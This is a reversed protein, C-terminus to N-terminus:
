TAIFSFQSEGFEINQNTTAIDVVEWNTIVTSANVGAAEIYAIGYSYTGTDSDRYQIVFADNEALARNTTINVNNELANELAAANAVSGLTYNLVNTATLLTANGNIVQM